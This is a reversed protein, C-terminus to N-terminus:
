GMKRVVTACTSPDGLFNMFQLPFSLPLFIVLAITKLSPNRARRMHDLLPFPLGYHFIGHNKSFWTGRVMHSTWNPALEADEFGEDM